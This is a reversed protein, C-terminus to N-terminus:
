SLVLDWEFMAFRIYAFRIKDLSLGKSNYFLITV